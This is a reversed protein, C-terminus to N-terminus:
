SEIRSTTLNTAEKLFASVEIVISRLNTLLLRLTQSVPYTIFIGAYQKVLASERHPLRLVQVFGIEM